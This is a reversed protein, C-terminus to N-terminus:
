KEINKNLSARIGDLATTLKYHMVAFKINESKIGLAYGNGAIGEVMGIVKLDEDFIAGGSSGFNIRLDASFLQMEGANGMNVKVNPNAIVGRSAAFYMGQPMGITYVEDFYEVPENSLKLPLLNGVDEYKLLAIDSYKNSYLVKCTYQKDYSYPIVMVTTNDKVIHQCTVIYKEGNVDLSFGTGLDTKTYVLVTSNLADTLEPKTEAFTPISTVLISVTTLTAIIFKKM